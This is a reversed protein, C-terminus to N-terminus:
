LFSGSQQLRIDRLREFCVGRITGVDIIMARWEQRDEAHHALRERALSKSNHEPLTWTVQTTASGAIAHSCDGLTWTVQM